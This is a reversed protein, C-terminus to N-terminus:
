KKNGQFKEMTVHNDSSIDKRSFVKWITLIIIKIDLYTSRNKVYWSDLELKKEWSINNRGNIQAWGTLGPLVNQRIAQEKSYLSLYEVLLPRPGVLSMDGKLVNYLEPLEDLSFSRLYKGVKTMREEDNFDNSKSLKMTRFKVITFIKSNIGPRNQTFFIPRGLNLYIIFSIFIFIPFLLVLALASFTIDFFRKIM